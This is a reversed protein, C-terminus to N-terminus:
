HKKNYGNDVSPFVAHKSVKGVKKKMRNPFKKIIHKNDNILNINIILCRLLKSM